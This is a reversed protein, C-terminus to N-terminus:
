ISLKVVKNMERESKPLTITLIGDQYDAKANQHDIKQPLSIVREFKGSYFESRYILENKEEHQSCYEGSISVNEESVEINIDDKKLGPLIAKLIFNNDKETLEVPMQASSENESGYYSSFLRDVLNEFDEFSSLNRGASFPRRSRLILNAM